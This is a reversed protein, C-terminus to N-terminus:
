KSITKLYSRFRKLAERKSYGMYQMDVYLGNVWTSLVLAGQFTYRSYIKEM